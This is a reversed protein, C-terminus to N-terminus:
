ALDARCLAALLALLEELEANTGFAESRLEDLSSIPHAGPTKQIFEDMPLLDDDPWHGPYGLGGRM